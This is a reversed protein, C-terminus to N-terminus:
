LREVTLGLVSAMVEIRRSLAGPALVAHHSPLREVFRYGDRIRLVGGNLCDSNQYQVYSSLVAPTVVLTHM